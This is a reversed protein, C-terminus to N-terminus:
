SGTGAAGPDAGETEHLRRVLVAIFARDFHRQCGMSLRGLSEATFAITTSPEAAVVDASRTRLAPNPALYSMEGVSRGAGVSAVRRGERFVELRGAAVIHFDQAKEGRRMLRHGVPLRQWCAQHVVEWLAIDDFGQFFELSRLLSFRESDLVSEHEVRPVERRRILHALADAFEDWSAPRDEPRKALARLILADLAPSVQSRYASPPAPPRELIEHLLAAPSDAEVPAHGTVLHYLVAGLSYMDSQALLEAGCLQEPSMYALSGVRHVQTVDAGFDLASGFDTLKVNDIGGRGEVVLINAPKVDRHILGQRFVYGLAMACKFGIEVIQELPLLRDARCHRQLTGGPVHEMVLYQEAPTSVADHIQVVHPHQLRGVLAAEAAFFRANYRAQQAGALAQPRVRKLAVDRAHFEDHCLFVDSTSGQGIRRTVRYKGIRDPLPDAIATSLPQLLDLPPIPM